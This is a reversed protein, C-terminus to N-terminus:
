EKEHTFLCIMCGHNRRVNGLPSEVPHGHLLISCFPEMEGHLSLAGGPDRIVGATRNTSSLLFEGYVHNSHSSFYLLYSMHTSGPGGGVGSGEREIVSDSLLKRFVAAATLCPTLCPPSAHTHPVAHPM